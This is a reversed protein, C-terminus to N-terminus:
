TGVPPVMVESEGALTVAPLGCNVSVTLPLPNTALVTTCHFPCVSVVVNSVSLLPLTRPVAVTGADSTALDPVANTFVSLGCEPAPVLPSEFETANRMLGAPFGTGLMDAIDGLQATAPLAPNERVTVPLL